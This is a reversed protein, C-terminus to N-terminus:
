IVDKLAAIGELQSVFTDVIWKDSKPCDNLASNLLQMAQDEDGNALLDRAFLLKLLRKELLMNLSDQVAMPEMM